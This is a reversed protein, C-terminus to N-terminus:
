NSLRRLPRPIQAATPQVNQLPARNPGSTYVPVVMAAAAAAVHADVIQKKAVHIANVNPHQTHHHYVPAINEKSENNNITVNISSSSSTSTSSVNNTIVFPDTVGHGHANAHAHVHGQMPTIPTRPMDDGADSSSCSYGGGPSSNFDFRSRSSSWSSVLGPASLGGSSAVPTVPVAVYVFRRGSTYWEKVIDSARSYYFPAYKDIVISSIEALHDAFCVDLCRTVRVIEDEREQAAAAAHRPLGCIFRALMLSGAAVVSPAVGVFERHFLTIEMLFRAVHQTKTDEKLNGMCALRMWAEATPHGIAWGITQLVHGEMQIFATEDYAKCCMDALERVTPVRDKADEFKAAIWLAACGVLQFHKKYVVRKSVYRDVINLALYLVEPRLRFQQHIEVLFDVLFPRMYWQLEPQMDMLDASACTQTEMDHMYATVEESYEDEFLLRNDRAVPPISRSSGFTTTTAGQIGLGAASTSAATARPAM